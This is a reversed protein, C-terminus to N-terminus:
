AVTGQSTAAKVRNVASRLESRIDEVAGVREQLRLLSTKDDVNAVALADKAEAMVKDLAHNLVDDALLRAAEKAYHDPSM